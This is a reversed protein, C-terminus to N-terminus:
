VRTNSSILEATAKLHSAVTGDLQNDFTRTVGILTLAMTFKGDRFVPASFATWTPHRMGTTRAIRALRV